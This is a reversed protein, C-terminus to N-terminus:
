LNFFDGDDALTETNNNEDWNSQCMVRKARLPIVIAEPATYLEIVEM